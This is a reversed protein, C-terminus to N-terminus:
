NKKASKIARAAFSNRPIHGMKTNEVKAIRRASKPTMPTKKGRMVVVITLMKKALHGTPMMIPTSNTLAIILRTSNTHIEM